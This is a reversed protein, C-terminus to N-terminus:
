LRELIYMALTNNKQKEEVTIDMSRDFWYMVRKNYYIDQRLRQAEMQSDWLVTQNMTYCISIKMLDELTM